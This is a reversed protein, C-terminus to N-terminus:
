RFLSLWGTITAIAVLCKNMQIFDVSGTTTDISVLGNHCRFLSPRTLEQRIIRGKHLQMFQFARPGNEHRSFSRRDIVELPFSRWQDIPAAPGLVIRPSGRDHSLM